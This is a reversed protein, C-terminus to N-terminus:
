FEEVTIKDGVARSKEKFGLQHALNNTRIEESQLTKQTSIYYM